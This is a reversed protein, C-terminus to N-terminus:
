PRGGAPLRAHVEFRRHVAPGAPGASFEGGLALVRERMGSIGFGDGFDSASGPPVPAPHIPAHPVPNSVVIRIAGTEYGIVVTAQSAGSHRLVNTLSEQVIRYGTLDVAVPLPRPEGTTDLRVYVGAEAMRQRLEDLRALGPMPTLEAGAGAKRVVALTARLEGLAEGSTRSIAELAVEAQDPKDALVHLAIDAQMKIAALGHGVIDHVERAVRLREDDISQRMAEARTRTAADHRTQLAFGVTFPVIVWASVPIAGSEGLPTSTTFVHVLLLALAAASYAASRAPPAHRAASYVAIMFSGLIPGYPYGLVLYVTTCVAVVALVPSPRRRRAALALAAVVVLVYALFDGAAPAAATGGAFTTHIIGLVMLAAAPVADGVLPRTIRMTHTGEDGV